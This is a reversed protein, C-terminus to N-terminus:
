SVRARSDAAYPRAIPGAAPGWKFRHNYKSYEPTSSGRALEYHTPLLQSLETRAAVYWERLNADIAQGNVTSPTADDYSPPRSAPGYALGARVKAPKVLQRM